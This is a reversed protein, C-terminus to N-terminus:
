RLTGKEEEEDDDLGLGVNDFDDLKSLSQGYHTLEDEDELNFAAGRSARQRERTFRELMREELSMSPDNEGFRRDVIGGARDKEQFEKLLTKKRQIFLNLGAICVLKGDRWSRVQEIGAQKSQGPKGTVGKLKRGGIDHKLKTVKVDFPNLRQHIEQLKAAKKDKFNEVAGSRKRKTGQHQTGTVGAKSLASKLQTLQSGKVM